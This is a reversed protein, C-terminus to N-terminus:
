ALEDVPYPAPLWTLDDPAMLWLDLTSVIGIARREHQQRLYHHPDGRFKTGHYHIVVPKRGFKRALRDYEEFTNRVHIVDCAPYLEELLRKRMPLDVPYSMYSATKAMSRVDWDTHKRFAEVIRIGQGGTDIAGVILVKM